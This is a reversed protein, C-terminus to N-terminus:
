AEIPYNLVWSRALSIEKVTVRPLSLGNERPEKKKISQRLRKVRVLKLNVKGFVYYCRPVDLNALKEVLLKKQQYKNHFLFLWVVRLYMKENM